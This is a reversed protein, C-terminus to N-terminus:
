GSSATGESSTCPASFCHIASNEDQSLEFFLCFSNSRVKIGLGWGPGGIGGAGWCVCVCQYTCASEVEGVWLCEWMVFKWQEAYVILTWQNIRHEPSQGSICFHGFGARQVCWSLRKIYAVHVCICEKLELFLPCSNPQATFCMIIYIYFVFCFFLLFLLIM